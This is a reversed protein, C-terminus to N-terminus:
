PVNTAAVGSGALKIRRPLPTAISTRRRERARPQRRRVRKAADYDGAEYVALRTELTQGTKRQPLFSRAHQPRQGLWAPLWARRPWSGARGKSRM